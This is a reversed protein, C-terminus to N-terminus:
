PGHAGQEQKFHISQCHIVHRTQHEGVLLALDFGSETQEISEIRTPEPLIEYSDLRSEVEETDSCDKLLAEMRVEGDISHLDISPKVFVLGSLRQELERKCLLANRSSSRPAGGLTGVVGQLTDREIWLALMRILTNNDYGRVSMENEVLLKTM